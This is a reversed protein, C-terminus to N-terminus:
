RLFLANDNSGHIDVHCSISNCGQSPFHTVRNAHCQLCTSRGRSKLLDRHPSGHPLHCTMCNGGSGIGGHSFRHPGVFSPHCKACTRDLENNLMADHNGTGHPNHCDICSVKGRTLSRLPDFGSKRFPHRSRRRFEREVRKHCSLCQDDAPKKLMPKATSKHISHCTTCSLGASAHRSFVLRPCQNTIAHPPM